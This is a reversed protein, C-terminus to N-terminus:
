FFSMQDSGVISDFSKGLLALVSDAIPKLQKEIYHDYDIDNYKMQIPIPGRETIVYYVVDGPERLMKAARVHPPINKTYDEVEKRLRKRYVLKDDYKGQKLEKITTRIFDDM